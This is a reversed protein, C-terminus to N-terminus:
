NLGRRELLADIKPEAGRFRKYLVMPDETGGAGLINERFRKATERDFLGKEKFAKFADADLVEAWIYSYYGASYGDGFIHNFYPSRYRVVIQPILGIRSLCKKEFGNPDLSAAETLTHWDMDLFSAAVYETTAFGQNFLSTERIKEILDDPMPAGTKYHKAYLRLVEPESAWNEMIQSPLEVFDTAVNTGSLSAYTCNSLLGHLAHGFEHFLTTAEDWSLLAPTDATPKSFNGCNVIVPAVRKGDKRMEDRYAGMWAGGRKSERPFYDVYLLGVHNGDAEKVVFTRVDDHYKPVDKVEEFTIGYLKTAVDFAGQRVNELQLYPRLMEEDLDYMAKKVKEAYYWWDWPQLKFDRGEADIMRQMEEAEANARKLAPQWVRDLLEYVKDPSKAMCEELVYHAHTKYGLLNARVVRLEAIRALNKKNDLEDGNDGRNIYAKLMRERLARNESYQLFPILSPKHLTFAWKGEHGRDKAAEAAAVVVNEPLGALDREDDIVLEYRNNEKLINEGFKLALVSLEENIARLNEQKEKDLNAGNRVFSKYTEELLRKQEISLDTAGKVENVATVRRFLRENMLIDDSHKSLRPAVEKAIEQMEDNTLSSNQAFFVNSVRALMEGSREMAEVTNAFNAPAPNSAIADIEAAHRKIAEDFAPMYHAIEIRDFPPVGFPTDFDEFFPNPRDSGYFALALLGIVMTVLRRRM